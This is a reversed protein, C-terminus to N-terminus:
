CCILSLFCVPIAFSFSPYTNQYGYDRDDCLIREKMQYVIPFDVFLNSICCSKQM